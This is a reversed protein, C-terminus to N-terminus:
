RCTSSLSEGGQAKQELAGWRCAAPTGQLHRPENGLGLHQDRLSSDNGWWKGGMKQDACPSGPQTEGVLCPSPRQGLPVGGAPLVWWCM